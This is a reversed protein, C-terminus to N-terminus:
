CSLFTVKKEIQIQRNRVIILIGPDSFDQYQDIRRGRATPPEFGLNLLSDARHSIMASHFIIAYEHEPKNNTRKLRLHSWKGPKDDGLLNRNLWEADGINSPAQDLVRQADVGHPHREVPIATLDLVDAVKLTTEGEITRPENKALPTNGLTTGNTSGFDLVVLSNGLYRFGFHNSSISKSKEYNESNNDIPELRLCIDKLSNRGCDACASAILDLQKRKGAISYSFRIRDTGKAQPPPPPTLDSDIFRAM